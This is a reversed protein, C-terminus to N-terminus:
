ETNSLNKDIHLLIDDPISVRTRRGAMFDSLDGWLQESTKTGLESNGTLSYLYYKRLRAVYTHFQKMNVREGKKKELLTKIGAELDNTEVIGPTISGKPITFPGVLCVPVGKALATIISKSGLSVMVDSVDLIEHIDTDKLVLVNQHVSQSTIASHYAKSFYPHDKYVVKWGNRVAFETVKDLLEKNSAFTPSFLQSRESTRPELGSAFEHIGNVYIVTENKLKEKLDESLEKQKSARQREGGNAMENVLRAAEIVEQESIPFQEFIAADLSPWSLHFMEGESVMISNPLEGYETVVTQCNNKKALSRLIEATSSVGTLVLFDRDNFDITRTIRFLQGLGSLAKARLYIGKILSGKAVNRIISNEWRMAVTIAKRHQPLLVGVAWIGFLANKMTWKNSCLLKNLRYTEWDPQDLELEGDVSNDIVICKEFKDKLLENEKLWFDFKVQDKTRLYYGFLIFKRFPKVLNNDKQMKKVNNNM